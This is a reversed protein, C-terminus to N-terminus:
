AGRAEASSVEYVTTVPAEALAVEFLSIVQSVAPLAEQRDLAARDRYVETAIYVNPDVVDLGIHFDVVGDVARSAHVVASAAALLDEAKGPLCKAKVIVVIM